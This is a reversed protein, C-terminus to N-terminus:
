KLPKTENTHENVIRMQYLTTDDPRVVPMKILNALNPQVVILKDINELDKATKKVEEMGVSPTIIKNITNKDQYNKLFDLMIPSTPIESKLILSNQAFGYSTFACFSLTFIIKKM